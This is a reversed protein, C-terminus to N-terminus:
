AAVELFSLPHCPRKIRMDQATTVPSFVKKVPRDLHSFSPGIFYQAGEGESPDYGGWFFGKPTMRKPISGGYFYPCVFVQVNRSVGGNHRPVSAM